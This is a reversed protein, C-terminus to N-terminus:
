VRVRQRKEIQAVLNDIYFDKSPFGEGLKKPLLKAIKINTELLPLIKEDPVKQEIQNLLLIVGGIAEEPPFMAYVPVYGEPYATDTLICGTKQASTGLNYSGMIYPFKLPQKQKRDNTREYLGLSLGFVHIDLPPINLNVSYNDNMIWRKNDRDFYWLQSDPVGNSIMILENPNANAILKFVINSEQLERYERKINYTM